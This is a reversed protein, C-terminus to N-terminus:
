LHAHHKRVYAVFTNKLLMTVTMVGVGGPVPTYNLAKEYVAPDCDGVLKGDMRHIGVDIVTTNESIDTEKIFGPKGMAVVLLDAQQTWSSLDKTKSHCMTVTCNEKQLLLSIPLGVLKSRGIVVAKKGTLSYEYYKLIELIGAPTCPIMGSNSLLKGQNLETLGDVDKEPAIAQIITETNLHRPLPLQVLIGDVEDDQNLTQIMSLLEELSVTASLRYTSSIMGVSKFANEKNKVYTQSAVDEGVLIVACHPARYGQDLLTAVDEKLKARLSESVIKGNLEM